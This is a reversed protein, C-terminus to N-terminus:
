NVEAFDTLNVRLKRGGCNLDKYYNSTNKLIVFFWNDSYVVRVDNDRTETALISQITVNDINLYWYKFYVYATHYGEGRKLQSVFTIGTVEGIDADHLIRTLEQKTMFEPLYPIYISMNKIKYFEGKISDEINKKMIEINNM